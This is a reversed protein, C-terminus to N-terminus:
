RASEATSKSGLSRHNDIMDLTNTVEFFEYPRSWREFYCRDKLVALETGFYKNFAVRFTNVPTISRYLGTEGGGPFFYANLISMREWLDTRGLDEKNYRSGSGHDSQLIIVPPEISNALISDITEQIRFTVFEVQARYKEVYNWREGMATQAFSRALGDDYYM